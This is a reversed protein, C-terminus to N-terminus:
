PMYNEQHWFDIENLITTYTYISDINYQYVSLCHWHGIFDNSSPFQHM